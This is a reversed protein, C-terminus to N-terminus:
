AGRSRPGGVALLERSGWAPHMDPRALVREIFQLHENGEGLEYRYWEKALEGWKRVADADSHGAAVWVADAALRGRESGYGEEDGLKWIERVLEIAEVGNITGDIWKAFRAWNAAMASLRSDSAKSEAEPLSCVSCTCGFGYTQQLFSRRQHRPKKTDTYTTLLEEGVAIPKIAHIYLTGETERYSYVTNFGSSCGHNLRAMRPFVGIEKGAQVANTEFIAFALHDVDRLPDKDKPFNVYSLNFFAWRQPESTLVLKEKIFEVPSTQITPPVTFLPKETLILEGRSINRTAIVGKGKGPIDVVAYAAGIAVEDYRPSPRQNVLVKQADGAGSYWAYFLGLSLGISLLLTQLIATRWSNAASRDAPLVTSSSVPSQKKAAKAGHGKEQKLVRRTQPAM